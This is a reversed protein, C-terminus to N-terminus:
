ERLELIWVDGLRQNSEALGGHVVINPRSSSQVLDADFWGRPAPQEAGSVELKSWTSATIDFIWVDELMKGAGQHGLNSPDSEGFMTILIPTGALVAALLCSVSRSIPGSRGDPVYSITTWRDEAIDYVDLNGGQETNGDFGNMRYLKRDSFAISPGGRAPAPAEALHKWTCDNINFSWLDSLRGKEPCGAHVFITDNGDNTMAYYSRGEPYSANGDKPSVKAWQSQVTDFAWLSGSEDVPSMAVGKRGSFVYIKGKLATSLVGVRPSPAMESPSIRSIIDSGDQGANLKVVHIDRDVPERPRLEGGFIYARDGAVSIAHSSRKIDEADLVRKWQGQVM